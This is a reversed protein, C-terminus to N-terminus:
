ILAPLLCDSCSELLMSTRVKSAIDSELIATDKIFVIVVLDEDAGLIEIGASGTAVSESLLFHTNLVFSM